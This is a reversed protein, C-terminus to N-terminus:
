WRAPGVSEIEYGEPIFEKQGVNAWGFLTAVIGFLNWRNFFSPEVYWPEFEFADYAMYYKGHKNPKDAAVRWLKSRPLSLNQLYWRRVPFFVAWIVYQLWQPPTPLDLAVRTEERILTFMINRWLPKTFRPWWYGALNITAMGVEYTEMTPRAHEAEYRLMFAY